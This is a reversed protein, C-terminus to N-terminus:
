GTVQEGIRLQEYKKNRIHGCLIWVLRTDRRHDEIGRDVARGGFPSIDNLRIHPLVLTLVTLCAMM